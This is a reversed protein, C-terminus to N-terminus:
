HDAPVTCTCSGKYEFLPSHAVPRKWVKLDHEDIVPQWEGIGAGACVSRAGEHGAAAAATAGTSSAAAPSASAPSPAIRVATAGVHAMDLSPHKEASNTHAAARAGLEPPVHSAAQQPTHTKAAAQPAEMAKAHFAPPTSASQAGPKSPMANPITSQVSLSTQSASASSSFSVDAAKLADKVVDTASAQAGSVQSTSSPNSTDSSVHISSPPSGTLASSVNTDPELQVANLERELVRVSDLLEGDVILTGPSNFIAEPGSASSSANSLVVSSLLMGGYRVATCRLLCTVYVRLTSLLERLGLLMRIAPRANALYGTNMTRAYIPRTYTSLRSFDLRLASSRIYIFMPSHVPSFLHLSRLTAMWYLYNFLTIDSIVSM